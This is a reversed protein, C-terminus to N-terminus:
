AAVHAAYWQVTHDIGEHLSVRPVFGHAMLKTVDPCRRTPGGQPSPMAQPALRIRMGLSGAVAHAVTAISVENDTGVHYIGAADPKEWLMMSADIFDDVYIFARTEEGTGQIPFAFEDASDGTSRGIDLMRATFEPIVHEVGMDPGYVNHPRIILLRDFSGCHIALMESIIKSASYSFRSNFPDAITLPVEEPTPVQQAQGYVESSSFLVLDPVGHLKCANLVNLVGRVGTDLVQSAERYFRSTGNVAALHWVTSAGAFARDVFREDRIDGFCQEVDDELDALRSFQGRYENDVVRVSVGRQVLCRVVNSGLFGAGGTVVVVENHM